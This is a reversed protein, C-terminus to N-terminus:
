EYSLVPIKIIVKTGKSVKSKIELKGRHAEIIKRSMYLGIGMGQVENLSSSKYFGDFIRELEEPEIGIGKDQILITYWNDNEKLELFIETTIPSFNAANELINDFVQLLKNADGVITREKASDNLIVKLTRDSHTFSFRQKVTALIKSLNITRLAYVTTGAHMHSADVLENTLQILRKVENEISRLWKSTKDSVEPAKRKLMQAYGQITTLPTRFEHAAHAIFQQRIELAQDNEKQMILRNITLTAMSAFLKLSELEESSFTEQHSDVSLVGICKKRYTLPIMLVSHISYSAVQKHVATVDHAPIHQIKRTKYAKYTFGKRRVKVQQNEPITSYVRELKKNQYLYISAHKVKVLKVVENFILTYLENLSNQELMKLAVTNLKTLM